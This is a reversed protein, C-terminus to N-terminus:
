NKNLILNEYFGTYKQQQVLWKAKIHLKIIKMKTGSTELDTTLVKKDKIRNFVALEQWNEKSKGQEICSQDGNNKKRVDERRDKKDGSLNTRIVGMRFNWNVM